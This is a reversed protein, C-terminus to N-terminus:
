RETRHLFSSKGNVAKYFKIAVDVILSILDSYLMCLQEEIEPTANFLKLRHLVSSFSMAFKYFVSFAKDLAESNDHTLELLLQAHGFGISAASSSDLAFNQIAQDFNHLQEAFYTSRILVKDWRSGKHPLSTLREARVWELFKVYSVDSISHYVGAGLQVM